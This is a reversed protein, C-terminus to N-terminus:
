MIATVMDDSKFAPSLHPLIYDRIVTANYLWDDHYINPIAQITLRHTEDLTRLGFLDEKYMPSDYVSTMVTTNNAVAYYGFLASQWPDIGKDNTQHAFSGVMYTAQRLRCYNEKYRRTNNSNRQLGLYQPLFTNATLFREPQKPDNWLNAISLLEQAWPEYALRTMADLTQVMFSQPLFKFWLDGFVGLQPGALSVFSSVVFGHGQNTEMVLAQCIVAGQSHCVLDIEGGNNISRAIRVLENQFWAVQIRLAVWSKAGDFPSKLAFVQQNSSRQKKVVRTFVNWSSPINGIGHLLVIPRYQQESADVALTVLLLVLVLVNQMKNSWVFMNAKRLRARLVNAVLLLANGGGTTFRPEGIPHVEKNRDM